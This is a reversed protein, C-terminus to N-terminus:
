VQPAATLCARAQDAIARLREGASPLDAIRGSGQGAYLAMAEFDGIMSRLPSDTSFLFIPRDDEFGIVQRDRDAM